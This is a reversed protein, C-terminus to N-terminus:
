ALLAALRDFGAKMGDDMMRAAIIGDRVQATAYVIEMRVTCGAGDPTIDTTVLTPGGTWDPDFLESHVIRAPAVEAFMGSVSMTTGDKMAWGYRFEGGPTPNIECTTMPMDRDGLWRKVLDPELFADFVANQGASFARTTVISRAGDAGFTFEAMMKEVEEGVQVAGPRQALMATGMM